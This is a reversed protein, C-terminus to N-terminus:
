EHLLEATKEASATIGVSVLDAGVQKTEHLGFGARLIEFAHFFLNRVKVVLGDVVGDAVCWPLVTREHVFDGAAGIAQKASARAATEDDVVGAEGFFAIVGDTDGALVDPPKAFDVVALDGDAGTKGAALLGGKGVDTEVKGLGPAVIWRATFFGADRLVLPLKEGFRGKGQLADAVLALEADTEVTHAHVAAVAAVVSEKVRQIPVTFGENSFNMAVLPNPDLCGPRVLM